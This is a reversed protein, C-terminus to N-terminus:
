DWDNFDKDNDDDDDDTSQNVQITSLKSSPPPPILASMNAMASGADFKITRDTNNSKNLTQKHDSSIGSRRSELRKRLESMMDLGKTNNNNNNTQNISSDAISDELADKKKLKEDHKREKITKRKPKGGAARISELLSARGNELQGHSFSHQSKPTTQKSSEVTLVSPPLSPPPPPPSSLSQENDLM